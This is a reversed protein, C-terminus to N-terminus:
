LDAILTEDVELFFRRLWLAIKETDSLDNWARILGKVLEPDDTIINDVGAEIMSLTTQMDNVTWVHIELGNRHARKVLQPTAQGAHISLFDARTGTLNGLARFVILGAEIEPILTKVKQLEGYDLSTVVCEGTFANRRILDAVRAAMEPDPRNYKLEINLLIRGRAFAMAQELTATRENKFDPSFWSGIDIDLLEEYRIDQIKRNVSAVRMLDGDHMLILEGDATTQVDIEAYDAGDAAAQRLASMTNEPAKFSSGRHATVAIPRHLDLNELLAIGAIIAAVLAVGVGIWGLTRLGSPTIHKTLWAAQYPKSRHGATEGYFAIVLSAYVAKGAISWAIATIATIALGGVVLPLIVALHLGDRPLLYAIITRLLWINIVSAALIFLWWVALPMGLAWFRHRTRQWSKRLAEVPRANEFVVVPVAFLWRVFLWAAVMLNFIILLGAIVLAVWWQWPQVALYYNIDRSGLLFFYTLAVGVAFPLCAAGFFIAQLLGLRILAPIHTLNEWLVTSVSVRRDAAAALSIIFLGVQELYWLALVFTITLLIFVIGRASLFFTILEQNSVTVRGSSIVLRNLLWATPPTLLFAYILGFWFEFYVVPRAASRFNRWAKEYRNFFSKAM